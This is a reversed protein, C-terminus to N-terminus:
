LARAGRKKMAKTAGKAYDITGDGRVGDIKVGAAVLEAHFKDVNIKM